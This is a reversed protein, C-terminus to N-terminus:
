HNCSFGGCRYALVFSILSELTNYIEETRPHTKDVSHFQHVQNDIEVWSCGPTKRANQEKLM